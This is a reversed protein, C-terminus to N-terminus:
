HVLIGTTFSYLILSIAVTIVIILISAIIPSISKM